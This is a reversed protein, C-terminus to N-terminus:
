AGRGQVRAANLRDRVGRGVGGEEQAPRVNDASPSFRIPAISLSKLGDLAATSRSIQIPPEAAHRALLALQEVRKGLEQVHLM